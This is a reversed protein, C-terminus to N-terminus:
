KPCGLKFIHYRGGLGLLFIPICIHSLVDQSITLSIQPAIIQTMDLTFLKIIQAYTSYVIYSVTSNIELRRKKQCAFRFGGTSNTTDNLINADRCHTSGEQLGCQIHLM